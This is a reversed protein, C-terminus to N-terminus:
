FTGTAAAVHGGTLTRVSGSGAPIVWTQGAAVNISYTLTVQTPSDQTVATPAAGDVTFDTPLNKVMIANNFILRWKNSAISSAAAAPTGGPINSPDLTNRNRSRTRHVVKM